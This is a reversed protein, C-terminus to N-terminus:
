GVEPRSTPVQFPVPNIDPILVLILVQVLDALEVAIEEIDIASSRVGSIVGAGAV